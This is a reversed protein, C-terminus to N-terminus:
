YTTNSFDSPADMYTIDSAVDNVTVYQNDRQTGDTTNYIYIQGGEATYIKHLGLIPALGTADGKYPPMLKVTNTGTDFMTLCSGNPGREGQHCLASGIWLTNDDAFAMKNHMGDSIPIAPSTIQLPLSVTNLITLNGALLGDPQL